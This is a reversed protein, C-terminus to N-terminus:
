PRAASVAQTEGDGFAFVLPAAILGALMGHCHARSRRQLDPSDTSDGWWRRPWGALSWYLIRAAERDGRLIHKMTFGSLGKGYGYELRLVQALTTRGHDHHVVVNPAYLVHFGKKLGRYIVDAEEGSAHYCGAGLRADFFGVTEFLRRRFATNAGYVENYDRPSRFVARREATKFTVPQLGEHALLIRGGLICLQPDAAFERAIEDAWHEDVLVDDDTFAVVEGASHRLATNRAISLGARPEFVYRFLDPQQALFAEITSRTADTSGNDVIVFEREYSGNWSQARLSHLTRALSAARNRTCILVSLKM